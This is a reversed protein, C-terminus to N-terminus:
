KIRYSLGVRVVEVRLTPLVSDSLAGSNFDALGHAYSVTIGFKQYYAALGLRLRVDSRTTGNIDNATYTVNDNTVAKGTESGHIGLAFDLGPMVDLKIRSLKFRYGFYPNLNIYNLHDTFTGTAPTGPSNISTIDIKSGLAEYGTQIGFIFNCKAIYQWQIDAGFIVANRNGTGNPYGTHSQEDANLFTSSVTGAGTYHSLGTNAQASIEFSQAKLEIISLVLLFSLIVKKM